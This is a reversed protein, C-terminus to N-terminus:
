FDQVAEQLYGQLHFKQQSSNMISAVKKSVNNIVKKALKIPYSSIDFIGCVKCVGKIDPEFAIEPIVNIAAIRIYGSTPSECNSLIIRKSAIAKAVRLITPPNETVPRINSINLFFSQFLVVQRM